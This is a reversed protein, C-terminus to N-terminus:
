LSARWSRFSLFAPERFLEALRAQGVIYRMTRQLYERLVDANREDEFDPDLPAMELDPTMEFTAQFVKNFSAKFIPISTVIMVLGILLGVICDAYQVGPADPKLWMVLGAIIVGVNNMLDCIIHLHLGHSNLSGDNRKRGGVLALFANWTASM